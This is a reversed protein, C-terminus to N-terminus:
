DPLPNSRAAVVRNRGEHKARYMAQDALSLLEELSQGGDPSDAVGFSASFRVVHTGLVIEQAAIAARWREAAALAQELSAHPLIVAFEEGGLRGIIDDSRTLGRMVEGVTQLVRDGLAHGHTDNVAKFHDMDLLVVAVAHRARAARRFAEQGLEFFARRNNLGTLDDSCALHEAHRRAMRLAEEMLKHGTIDFAIQIRVVRCDVWVIAQDRCHYWRHTHNNHYEWVVVGAPRGQDDVLRSNTCFGCPGSQGSQLLQWCKKGTPDGWHTRGYANLFILDHTHIDAVYVLADLSDLITELSRCCISLAAADGSSALAAASSTAPSDTLSM